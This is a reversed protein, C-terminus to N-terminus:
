WSLNVVKKDDEDNESGWLYWKFNYLLWVGNVNAPETALFNCLIVGTTSSKSKKVEMLFTM